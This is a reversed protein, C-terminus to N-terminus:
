PATELLLDCRDCTGRQAKSRFGLFGPEKQGPALVWGMMAGTWKKWSPDARRPVMEQPGSSKRSYNPHPPSPPVLWPGPTAPCPPLASSPGAAWAGCHLRGSLGGVVRIIKIIGSNWFVPGGASGALTHGHTNATALRGTPQRILSGTHTGQHATMFRIM